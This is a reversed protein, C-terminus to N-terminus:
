QIADPWRERDCDLRIKPRRYYFWHTTRNWGHKRATEERWICSETEETFERLKSDARTLRDVIAAIEDADASEKLIAIARGTNRRADMDNLYEDYYVHSPSGFAIQDVCNVWGALRSQLEELTFTDPIHM